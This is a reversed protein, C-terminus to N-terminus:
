ALTRVFIPAAAARFAANATDATHGTGFTLKDKNFEGMFFAKTSKDGASANCDIALIAAPDESGDAAAALSLTYKGSATIKGLVAGRELNQGSVLTIKDDKAPLDGALLGNPDYTGTEM